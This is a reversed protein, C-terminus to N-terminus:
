EDNWRYEPFLKNSPSCWGVICDMMELVLDEDRERQQAQLQARANQFKQLITPPSYGDSALHLALERLQEMPKESQLAAEFQDIDHIMSNAYM